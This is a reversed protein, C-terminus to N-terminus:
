AVLLNTRKELAPILQELLTPNSCSSQWHSHEQSLFILKPVSPDGMFSVQKMWYAHADFATANYTVTSGQYSITVDFNM